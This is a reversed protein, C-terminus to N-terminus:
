YYGWLLLRSMIALLCISTWFTMRMRVEGYWAPLEGAAVARRDRLFLYFCVGLVLAYRWAAGLAFGFLGQGLALWVVLLAVIGATLGEKSREGAALAGGAGVGTKYAAVLGAYALAMSHLQLAIYMPLAWPSMWVGIAAIALPLLGLLGLRTMEERHQANM